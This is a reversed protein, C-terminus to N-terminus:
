HRKKRPSPRKNTLSIWNFVKDTTLIGYCQQQQQQQQLIAVPKHLTTSNHYLPTGVETM